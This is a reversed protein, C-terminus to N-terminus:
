NVVNAVCVVVVEGRNVVVFLGLFRLFGLLVLGAVVAM